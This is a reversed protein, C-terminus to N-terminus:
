KLMISKNVLELKLLIKNHKNLLFFIMRFMTEWKLKEVSLILEDKYFSNVSDGKKIEKEVM